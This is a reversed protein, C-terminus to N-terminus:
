RLEHWQGASDMAGWSEATLLPVRYGVSGDDNLCIEITGSQGAVDFPLSVASAENPDFKPAHLRMQQLNLPVRTVIESFRVKGPNVGGIPHVIPVTVFEFAYIMKDAPGICGQNTTVNVFGLVTRETGGVSRMRHGFVPQSRRVMFSLGNDAETRFAFQQIASASPVVQHATVTLPSDVSFVLGPNPIASACQRQLSLLRMRQEIPRRVALLSTVIACAILPFSVWLPVRLRRRKPEVAYNIVSASTMM